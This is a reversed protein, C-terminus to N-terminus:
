KAQGVGKDTHKPGLTFRGFSVRVLDGSRALKDLKARISNMRAQPMLRKIHGAQFVTGPHQLAYSLIRDGMSGPVLYGAPVGRPLPATPDPPPRVTPPAPDTGGRDDTDPEEPEALIAAAANLGIHRRLRANERLLEAIRSLYTEELSPDDM